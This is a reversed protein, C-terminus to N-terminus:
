FISSELISDVQIRQQNATNFTTVDVKNNFTSDNQTKTYYSSILNDIHTTNHYNSIGRTNLKSALLNKIESQTYLM